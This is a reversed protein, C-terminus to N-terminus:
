TSKNKFGCTQAIGYTTLHYNKKDIIKRKAEDIRYSNVFHILNKSTQNNVVQSLYKSSTNLKQAIDGLKLDPDLYIKEEDFLLILKTYLDIEEIDDLASSHYKQRVQMLSLRRNNTNNVDIEFAIYNTLEGEINYIPHIFLECLYETGNKRYNIIEAKFSKKKNLGKRIKEIVNIDSKEGQLLNPKKGVVEEFTYGTIVSFDDNVWQIKYNTDTLIIAVADKIVSENLVQKM